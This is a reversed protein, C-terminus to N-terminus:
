DFLPTRTSAARRYLTAALWIEIAEKVFLPIDGDVVGAEVGEGMLGDSSMSCCAAMVLAAASNSAATVLLDRSRWSGAARPGFRESASAMEFLKLGYVSAVKSHSDPSCVLHALVMLSAGLIRDIFFVM